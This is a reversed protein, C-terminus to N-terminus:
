FDPLLRYIAHIICANGLVFRWWFCRGTPLTLNFALTLPLCARAVAWYGNWVFDGLCWFLVAFGLAARIWPNGWAARAQGLIAISQFALGLAGVLGWAYRSDLNGHSLEWGCRVLHKALAWGPWDFNGAFGGGGAPLTARLWLSWAIAPAVAAATWLWRKRGSGHDLALASLLATERALGAAALWAIGGGARDHRLARVALLLLLAAPLDVLAFRVSDLAGLSLVGSLWLWTARTPVLEVSEKWWWHAFLLWAAVNLLAFTQLVWWPKVAIHALLPLLIRQARYAPIDQAAQVEPRGLRLDVALQAYYQGDYGQGPVSAIPQAAVSPLRTAARDDGFRLLETFGTRSDWRCAVLALVAAVVM